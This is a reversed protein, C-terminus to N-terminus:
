KKIDSRDMCTIDSSRFSDTHLYTDMHGFAHNFKQMYCFTKTPAKCYSQHYEKTMTNARLTM